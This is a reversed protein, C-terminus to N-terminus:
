DQMPPLPMARPQPAVAAVPSPAALGSDRTLKLLPGPLLGLLLILVAAGGIVAKSSWRLIAPPPVNAPRPRMYMVMVVYLYYGASIVSTVVLIVALLTGRPLPSSLAAQVLYWKAMFGVGGFVPFGLLALMFITMSGALWPRDRWLGGYDEVGLQPEGPTGIASVVAFAGMTALTYAFAYFLLASSGAATGSAVAVLIYGGHAISSYALLRKINRQALAIMNGAVMTIVAIWWLPAHWWDSLPLFSERLIRLLAIFAAAKVAAAMYATIPTPAGEYVDPAWMHFPAAAVKFAFGVILLGLGTLVLPSVPLGDTLIREGVVTLNTSGTGGYILAIGYLLFATSFAGLLFYKIAAEAARPSRRNMGALVYTAISMLEIGLFILMLDRSAALLMMGGTAFLILVHSESQHIGERENYDIAIAITCVTALLFVINAVWRFNDAVVIGPAASVGRMAYFVVVIGVVVTLAICAIGVSRQHAASEPRWAAWLLLLTAGALLMIDPGLIIALELPNAPDFM